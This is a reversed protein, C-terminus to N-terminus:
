EAIAVPQAASSPTDISPTASSPIDISPTTTWTRLTGALFGARCAHRQVKGSSTKPLSGPTILVIEHVRLEHEDSIAKRIAKILVDARGAGPEASGRDPRYDREVEAVVVLQETGDIDVAFAATGGPRMGPHCSEVTLEIDQPYYNRGGVILMDKIRGTVFVERDVTFGLDGTRLFMQDDSGQLRAQFTRETEAPRNWYGQAVSPGSVWIEGIGNPEVPTHHEPDVIQVQQDHWSMGCSVLTRADPDAADVPAVTHTELATSSFSQVTPVEHAMGGTVFLTAEALGYCPYFTEARFGCPAFIETFRQLTSPRIPEAGNFAVRWSSLDLQARQEATVKRVCLDYAFNPAGSTTAKYKTIAQLWRVPRQLFALPSMLVSHIGLSMPQLVNGILGMDHYLPLWGVFITQDNHNFADGIMQVNHLLNRHSVMVGKPTATSGSTYQLFALTEGDIVPSQWRDAITAELQDTACWEAGTSMEPQASLQDAIPSISSLTLIFRPQADQIIALLRRGSTRDVKSVHPPYAPVAITGAYLCGFFAALYDLGPPYLLVAREGAAGRAQLWAGIMRAQADLQAFSWRQEDSEGNRLFSYAPRDPRSHVHSRLLEVLTTAEVSPYIVAESM